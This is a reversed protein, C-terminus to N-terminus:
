VNECQTFKGKFSRKEAVQQLDKERRERMLDEDRQVQERVRKGNIKSM